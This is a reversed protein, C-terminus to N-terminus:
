TQWYKQGASYFIYFTYFTHLTYFAYLSRHAVRPHAADYGVEFSAFQDALFASRGLSLDGVGAGVNCHFRDLVERPTSSPLVQILATTKALSPASVRIVPTESLPNPPGTSSDVLQVAATILSAVSSGVALTSLGSGSTSGGRQLYLMTCRKVHNQNLLDYCEHM